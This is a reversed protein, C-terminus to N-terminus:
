TQRLILVLIRSSARVSKSRVPLTAMTVPEDRPMPRAMTSRM